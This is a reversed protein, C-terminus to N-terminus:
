CPRSRRHRAGASDLEASGELDRLTPFATVREGVERLLELHPDEHIRRLLGPLGDLFHHLRLRAPHSVASSFISM